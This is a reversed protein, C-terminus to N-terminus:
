GCQDAHRESNYWLYSERRQGVTPGTRRGSAHHWETHAGSANRKWDFELAITGTNTIIGSMPLVAGDDITMTGANSLAPTHDFVFNSASLSSVPVGSLTISQGDALTIVANGAGDEALHRQVDEFNAFRPYGVLDIQDESANFSYITDYGIPQAIVFLDKGMSGTLHDDASWAFIPAGQAFVEVNDSVRAFGTSGDANTWSMTVQLAMAGAYNDPSTISLMSVGSAQITWSGDGNNTGESLTWGSPVGAIAVTVSGVHDAPDTLGLNIPSGAVGAPLVAGSFHLMSSATDGDGDVLVYGVAESSFDIPPQFTFAGTTMVMALEGGVVSTNTDVTLTKTTGNYTFSGGGSTTIGGAGGNAAPLFTYTVGDVTISQVYGGDAGFSNPPAGGASTLVSGTVPPITFVLANALQGLDTVIIPTDALQTGSAPDFAIPNLNATQPAGNSIGLAFSVINNTTLFAEWVGRENDQIGPNSQTGNIQPWDSGTTPEGDSLFYSVNQTGPGSLKTGATFATMATLLAADYNTNGGASLNAIDVKADAVSKWASGVATGATSFTVIRVMVDGRSDYQDLLENVAAKAAELRTLGPLGSPSDMSGSVDLILMVNTKSDTAVVSVEVPAAKPSDDEITVSLTTSTTTHGDSVTVPVAFPKNDEQNVFPHDIPGTLAVNYTGADTITATIITATGAKGILTHGAGQLTWAIAVGGSTLSASPTGLSMTLADGDADSATITGSATRSNTTDLGAPLTDPVSNPLGEESVAVAAAGSTIVPADNVATINIIATDSGTLAAGGSFGNDNISLTLTASASPTDTPDIYSVTSTSDTNLLANIQALTGTITVSNTGSGSVTAGSTGATVTLTGETVSLTVTEVGGLSDVDSVSMSNKLNLSVQEAASYSTPTITAVPADNVSGINIIATDSGTLAAGGSLGNDNISLTLTASASPTNTPDIYSVTSTSDTNLLANIQALTGTITVSNTGNNLVTAGSTGATVTLTGETVSLTATEVGGLSDVDSVSMSNKLNLSVQEATSYSTPTITAVPVDNVSGINIIATDNGTLAAGGSFGNDNISLTLTASASPTDTPDIYSVTSTSDTNLLANIQALTGTVTVSNTGSGSVVAGSTGATVTLTGETVSLTATEVGGLSDVDSVSMSNKLNLSVQEATSYTTPTITAVPADNM